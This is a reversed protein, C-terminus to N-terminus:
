PNLLMLRVQMGDNFFNFSDILKTISLQLKRLHIIRIVVFVSLNLILVYVSEAENSIIVIPKKM